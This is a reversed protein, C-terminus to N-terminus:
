TGAQSACPWLRGHSWEYRVARRVVLALNVLFPSFPSLPPRLNPWSAMVVKAVIPRDHTTAEGSKKRRRVGWALNAAARRARVKQRPRRGSLNDCNPRRETVSLTPDIDYCPVRHSMPFHHIRRITLPAPCVPASRPPHPHPDDNSGGGIINPYFLTGRSM